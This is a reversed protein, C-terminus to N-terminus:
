NKSSSHGNLLGKHNGVLSTYLIPPMLVIGMPQIFVCIVLGVITSIVSFRILIMNEDVKFWNPVCIQM